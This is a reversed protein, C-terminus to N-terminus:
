ILFESGHMIASRKSRGCDRFNGAYHRGSSCPQLHPEVRQHDQKCEENRGMATMKAGLESAKANLMASFILTEAYKPLVELVGEPSPEYEYGTLNEAGGINEMPLLKSIEQLQTLANM